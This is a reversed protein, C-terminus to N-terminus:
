RGRKGPSVRFHLPDRLSQIERYYYLPTPRKDQFTLSRLFAIEEQTADGSLSSDELFEKLGAEEESPVEPGREIFEFTKHHGPSVRRNLVIEICFTALDIDWSEILLDLFAVCNENSLDFITTDLFQLVTVRMEPYSKKSLRAVRRLWVPNNLEQRAVNKVVGLLKQTVFRELEGFPQKEFITRIQRHKGPHCKRLILERVNHLLAGPQDGLRKRLHEHRQLDALKALQGEPLQLARGIKDYMDTRNPAPPLKKEALLQSIYSETVHAARALDRQGLGLEKLRNRILLAIPM